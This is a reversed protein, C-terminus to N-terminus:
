LGMMRAVRLIAIVTLGDFLEGSEVMEICKRFPVKKVKLVETEDPAMEGQTLGKALYLYARESTVCNSLHIEGGLQQWHEAVIGTEERLERKIADLPDEGPDAGGEPLEWSYVDTPYRYQGVLYIEQEDNMAVVGTAVRTDVVSYIGPKGTPSIVQDERLTMWPNEYILRSGVRKWPNGESM